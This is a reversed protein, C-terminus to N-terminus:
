HVFSVASGNGVRNKNSNPLAGRWYQLIMSANSNSFLHNRLIFMVANVADKLPKVNSTQHKLLVVIRMERYKKEMLRKCMASTMLHVYIVTLLPVYMSLEIKKTNAVCGTESALEDM